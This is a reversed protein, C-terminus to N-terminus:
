GGAADSPHGGWQDPSPYRPDAAPPTGRYGIGRLADGAPRIGGRRGPGGPQTGPRLGPGPVRLWVHDQLVGARDKRDGGSGGDARPLDFGLLGDLSFNGERVRNYARHFKRNLTLILGVAHEAVAHPSYAPVRAVTLGHEAAARLDVHNFGASRLTLLRVGASALTAIVPESLEDNVFPCVADFGQVLAVTDETLRTEFYTLEHGHGPNAKELAERDYPKTSFVAIKLPDEQLRIFGSPPTRRCRHVAM